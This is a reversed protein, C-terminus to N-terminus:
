HAVLFNTGVVFDFADTELVHFKHSVNKDPVAVQARVLKTPPEVQGNGMKVTCPAGNLIPCARTIAKVSAISCTAGTELLGMKPKGFISISLKLVNGGAFYVFEKTPIPAM